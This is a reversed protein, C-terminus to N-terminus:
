KSNSAVKALPCACSLMTQARIERAILQDGDTLLVIVARNSVNWRRGCVCGLTGRM